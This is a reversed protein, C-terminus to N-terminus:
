SKADWVYIGLGHMYSIWFWGFVIDQMAEFSLYLDFSIYQKCSLGKYNQKCSYKWQYSFNDQFMIGRYIWKCPIIHQDNSKNTEGHYVSVSTCVYM